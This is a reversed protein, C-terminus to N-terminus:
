DLLRDCESIQADCSCQFPSVDVIISINSTRYVQVSTSSLILTFDLDIRVKLELSVVGGKEWLLM